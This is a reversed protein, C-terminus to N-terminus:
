GELIMRHRPKLVRLKTIQRDDQQGPQCNEEECAARQQRQAHGSTRRGRGCGQLAHALGITRLGQIGTDVEIAHRGIQVAGPQDSRQIADDILAPALFLGQCFHGAAAAPARCGTWQALEVLVYWAIHGLREVSLAPIVPKALALVHLTDIVPLCAPLLLPAIIFPAVMDILRHSLCQM